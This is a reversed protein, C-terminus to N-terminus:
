QNAKPCARLQGCAASIDQGKSKRLTTVLGSKKLQKRFNDIEERQPPCFKGYSYNLPILNIKSPIGNLLKTMRYADSNSTNIGKILVYEFTVPYKDLKSFYKLVGTLDKLPYKRNIPMLMSRTDNDASHLSISLKIGLKLEALKKIQPVLGCTSICIRRRGFHIGEPEMFTKIAQITNSFNELPEGIGMFVINTIKAKSIDSVSLYQNIIECPHLNRRFGGKGSLCFKCNFKCGVQSSLCLTNRKGEPILVAEICNNDELGFLFKQTGDSSVERKLLNISSFYFNSKLFERTKKSINTMLYFDEIRRQYVWNFIQQGCFAPLGKIKLLEKLQALTYNKLDKSNKEKSM